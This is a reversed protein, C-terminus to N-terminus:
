TIKNYDITDLKNSIVASLNQVGDKTIVVNDEIRVGINETDIYIGPEVTLVMSEELPTSYDGVDHVDIGLFHSTRHKYYNM